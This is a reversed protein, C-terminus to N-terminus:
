SSLKVQEQFGAAVCGPTVFGTISIPQITDCVSSAALFGCDLEFQADNQSVGACTCLTPCVEATGMPSPSVTLPCHSVGKTYPFDTCAGDVAKCGGGWM